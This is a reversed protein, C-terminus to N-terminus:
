HSATPVGDLDQDPDDDEGPDGAQTDRDQATLDEPDEYWGWDLYPRRGIWAARTAHAYGVAARAPDDDRYEALPEVGDPGYVVPEGHDRGLEIDTPMPVVHSVWEDGATDTDVCVLVPLHFLVWRRRDLDILDLDPKEAAQGDDEGDHWM